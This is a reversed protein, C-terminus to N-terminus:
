PKDAKQQAIRQVAVTGDKAQIIPGCEALALGAELCQDKRIGDMEANIARLWNNAAAREAALTDLQSKRERSLPIPPASATQAM